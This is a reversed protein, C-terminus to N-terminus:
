RQIELPTPEIDATIPSRWGEPRILPIMLKTIKEEAGVLCVRQSGIDLAEAVGGVLRNGRGLFL